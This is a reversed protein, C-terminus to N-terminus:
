VRPVWVESLVKSGTLVMESASVFSVLVMNGAVSVLARVFVVGELNMDIIVVGISVNAVPPLGESLPIVLTAVIIHLSKKSATKSVRQVSSLESSASLIM